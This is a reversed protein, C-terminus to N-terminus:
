HVYRKQKIGLSAKKFPVKNQNHRPTGLPLAAELCM